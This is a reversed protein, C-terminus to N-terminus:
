ASGVDWGMWRVSETPGVVLDKLEQTARIIEQRSKQIEEQLRPFDAYGDPEFSPFAIDNARLYNDVKATETAIIQSLEVLLSPKIATISTNQDAFTGDTLHNIVDSGAVSVNGATDTTEVETVAVFHNDKTALENYDHHDDAQNNTIPSAGIGDMGAPQTATIFDTGSM